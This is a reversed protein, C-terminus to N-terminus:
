RLRRGDGCSWRWWRRCGLVDRGGPEIHGCRPHHDDGPDNEDERGDEEGAGHDHPKVVVAIVAIVHHVLGPSGAAGPARSRPLENARGARPVTGRATRRWAGTGTTRGTRLRVDALNALTAPAVLLGCRRAPVRAAPGPPGGPSPPTSFM